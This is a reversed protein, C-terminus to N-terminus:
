LIKSVLKARADGQLALDIGRGTGLAQNSTGETVREVM